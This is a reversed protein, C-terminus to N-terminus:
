KRETIIFRFHPIMKDSYQAAFVSRLYLKKEGDTLMMEFFKPDNKVDSITINNVNLNNKILRESISAINRAFIEEGDKACKDLYIKETAYMRTFAKFNSVKSKAKDYVKELNNGRRDNYSIFRIGNEKKYDEIAQEADKVAKELIKLNNDNSYYAYQLKAHEEIKKMYIVKFDQMLETIKNNIMEFHEKENLKEATPNLEDVTKAIKQYTKISDKDAYSLRYDNLSTVLAYSDLKKKKLNDFYSDRVFFQFEKPEDALGSCMRSTVYDYLKCFDYLDEKDFSKKNKRIAKLQLLIANKIDAAKKTTVGYKAIMDKKEQGSISDAEKFDKRLEEETFSAATNAIAEAIFLKIDKM